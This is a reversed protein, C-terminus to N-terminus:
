RTEIATTASLMPTAASYKVRCTAPAIGAAVPPVVFVALRGALMALM